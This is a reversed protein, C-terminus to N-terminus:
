SLVASLKRPKTSTAQMLSHSRWKDVHGLFVDKFDEALRMRCAQAADALLLAFIFIFARM